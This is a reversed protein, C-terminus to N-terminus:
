RRWAGTGFDDFVGAAILDAVETPLTRFASRYLHTTRSLPGACRPCRMTVLRRRPGAKWKYARGCPWCRGQTETYTTVGAM